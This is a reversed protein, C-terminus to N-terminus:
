VVAVTLANSRLSDSRTAKFRFVGVHAFTLTAMGAANTVVGDIEAGPVVVGTTGDTVTVTLSEGVKVLAAEPEVKLFYVKNFADFAWLVNDGLKTEFQCGGVPTFQFNVLLGWFMTSTEASTSIRTIFFDDFEADFTGDYTFGALKSAADLADTPTNGPKPNANLNTGDCLHTGGSATTINRPGSIIPAEYFTSTEGEIRLNVLQLIAFESRAELAELTRPVVNSLDSPTKPLASAIGAILLGAFCIARHHCLM